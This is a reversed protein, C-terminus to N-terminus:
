PASIEEIWEHVADDTRTFFTRQNPKEGLQVWDARTPEVLVMAFNALAAEWKQKDEDTKIESRSPVDRPWQKPVDYSEIIAGPAVPRAWTAKMAPRMDDYVEQRKKEWDFKGGSEDDEAGNEALLALGSGRALQDSAVSHLSHDPATVVFARGTLRFQDMTGEMWWAIEVTPNSLMQTVKPSRVDTSTILLPAFPANKPM